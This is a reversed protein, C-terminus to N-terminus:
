EHNCHLTLQHRTYVTVRKNDNDRLATVSYLGGVILFLRREREYARGEKSAKGGKGAKAWSLGQDEWVV